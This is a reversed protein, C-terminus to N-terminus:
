CKDNHRLPGVQAIHVCAACMSQTISGGWSMHRGPPRQNALLSHGVRIESPSPSANLDVLCNAFSSM